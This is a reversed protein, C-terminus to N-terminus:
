SGALRHLRSVDIKRSDKKSWPTIHEGNRNIRCIVFFVKINSFISNAMATNTSIEKGLPLSPLTVACQPWLLGPFNEEDMLSRLEPLFLVKFENYFFIWFSGTHFLTWYFSNQQQQEVYVNLGHNYRLAFISAEWLLNVSLHIIM